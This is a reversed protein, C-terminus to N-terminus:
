NPWLVPWFGAIFYGCFPGLDIWIVTGFLGKILEWVTGLIPM